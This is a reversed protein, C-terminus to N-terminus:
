RGGARYARLRGLIDEPRGKMPHLPVEIRTKSKRRYARTMLNRYWVAKEPKAVAEELPRHLTVILTSLLIQRVATNFLELHAIEAWAIFGIGAIFLGDDNAGLQPRRLEVLPFFYFSLILALITLVYLRPDGWYAALFGTLVAGALGGYVPGEGSGSRYGTAFPRPGTDEFPDHPLQTEM